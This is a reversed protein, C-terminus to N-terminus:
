SSELEGVVWLNDLSNERRICNNCRGNITKLNQADQSEWENPIGDTLFLITSHCQSSWCSLRDERRSDALMEFAKTLSDRYNTSGGASLGDLWSNLADKNSDTAPVM